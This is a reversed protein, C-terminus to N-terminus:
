EGDEVEKARAVLDRTEAWAYFKSLEVSMEHVLKRLKKIEADKAKIQKTLLENTHVSADVLDDMERKHAALIRDSYVDLASGEGDIQDGCHNCYHSDIFRRTGTVEKMEECVQDVTENDNTM